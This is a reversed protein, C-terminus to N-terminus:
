SNVAVSWGAGYSSSIQAVRAKVSSQVSGFDATQMAATYTWSESTTTYKNKVTVGDTDYIIIGYGAWDPDHNTTALDKLQNDYRVREKWSFQWDSGVHLVKADTVTWMMTNNSVMQVDFGDVKDLSSGRTVIKYRKTSMRDKDMWEVRVLADDVLCFLENAQHMSIFQETGQRGRLLRSLKYTNPGILTANAFGILERGVMAWNKGNQVDLDSVSTLSNTKLKVTIETTTDWTHYGAAATAVEVLGITAERTATDILDYSAGGNESVYIDAGPWGPVDYGHVAFYMRVGKDADNVNPLDVALGQSYGIVVPINTSPRPIVVDINSGDIAEPAGADVGEFDIVGERSESLKTIRVLGMPSDIIDGPELDIHKYGTSFSFQQRELHATVLAIETIQKAKEHSLTVPVTLNIIQGEDFTYLETSQNFRNYDLDEAYYDISVRKPLEIGQFRKSTYPAPPIGPNEEGFGIDAFTLTKVPVANRPVFKLVGGTDVMEFQYALSLQNLISRIATVQGILFQCPEDPLATVDCVVDQIACLSTIVDRISPATFDSSVYGPSGTFRSDADGDGEGDDTIIDVIESGAWIVGAAIAAAGILEGISANKVWDFIDAQLQEFFDLQPGALGGNDGKSAVLSWSPSAGPEHEPNEETSSTNDAVAVYTSGAYSVVSALPNTESQKKYEKNLEFPGEWKFGWGNQGAAGTPGPPGAPGPVYITNSENSGGGTVTSTSAATNCAETRPPPAYVTKTAITSGLNTKTTKQPRPCYSM